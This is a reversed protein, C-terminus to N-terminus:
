HHGPTPTPVNFGIFVLSPCYVERMSNSWRLSKKCQVSPVNWLTFYRLTIKSLFIVHLFSMSVISALAKLINILTYERKLRSLDLVLM